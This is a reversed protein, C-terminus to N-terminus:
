AKRAFTRAAVAQAKLAEPSFSAPMEALLVGALYHDLEEQVVMGDSYRLLVPLSVAAPATEEPISIQIDQIPTEQRLGMVAYNLMMGPLVMGMMLAALIDKWISTM